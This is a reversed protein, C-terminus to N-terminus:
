YSSSVASDTSYTQKYRCNEWAAPGLAREPVRVVDCRMVGARRAREMQSRTAASTGDAVIFTETGRGACPQFCRWNPWGRLPFITTSAEYGFSGAM